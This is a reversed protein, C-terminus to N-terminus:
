FGLIKKKKKQGKLPPRVVWKAMPTTRGGGSRGHPHSWGGKIKKKREKKKKKKFLLLLNDKKFFIFLYIIKIALVVENQTPHTNYNQLGFHHLKPTFTYHAYFTL